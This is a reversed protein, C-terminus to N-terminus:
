FLTKLMDTNYKVILVSTRKNGKSDMHKMIFSSNIGNSNNKTNKM